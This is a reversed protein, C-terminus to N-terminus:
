HGRTKILHEHYDPKTSLIFRGVVEGDYVIEGNSSSCIMRDANLFCIAVGNIYSLSRVLMESDFASFGKSIAVILDCECKCLTDVAGVSFLDEGVLVGFRGHCTNYLKYGYGVSQTKEAVTSDSIGILRSNDSAVISTHKSGYNDTEVGAFVVSKLKSSLRGMQILVDNKGSLEDSFSVKDFCGFSFIVVDSERCDEIQNVNTFFSVKIKNIM